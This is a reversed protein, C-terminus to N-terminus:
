ACINRRYIRQKLCTIGVLIRLIYIGVTLPFNHILRVWKGNKLFVGLFRYRWGLQKRIIPDNKGWKRTYSAFSAAYYNKKALYASLRFIGENHYLPSNIIGVAGINKIRRDFDWDEPGNLSEDFGGIELFRDRNVFRVCDIVTANYFSREFDRVKIWFGRGIIREPIYLAAYGENECRDICEKIVNESLIMDADLYLIYKSGAQKIGFNRQASREPGYSYIKDAYQKAIDITKDTSYNDVVIIDIKEKPFAQNKVSELCNAINNEENKTTIVVSVLLAM